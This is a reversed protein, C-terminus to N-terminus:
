KRGEQALAWLDMGFRHCLLDIWDAQQGHEREWAEPDDDLSMVIPGGIRHHAPCIPLVLWHYRRLKVGRAKPEQMREVISAGHAHAVEAPAQCLLCGGEVLRTWYRRQEATPAHNM